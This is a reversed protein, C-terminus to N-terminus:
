RKEQYISYVKKLFIKLLQSLTKLYAHKVLRLASAFLVMSRSTYIICIDQLLTSGIGGEQGKSVKEDRKGM